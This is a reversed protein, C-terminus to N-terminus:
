LNYPRIWISKVSLEVDNEKGLMQVWELIGKFIPDKLNGHENVLLPKLDTESAVSHIIGLADRYSGAEELLPVNAVKESIQGLIFNIRESERRVIIQVESFDSLNVELVAVFGKDLKKRFAIVKPIEALFLNLGKMVEWNFPDIAVNDASDSKKEKPYYPDFQIMKGTDGEPPWYRTLGGYYVHMAAGCGCSCNLSLFAYFEINHERRYITSPPETTFMGGISFGWKPPKNKFNVIQM